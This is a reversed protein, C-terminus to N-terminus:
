MGVILSNAGESGIASDSWDLQYRSGVSESITLNPSTSLFIPVTTKGTEKFQNQVTDTTNNEIVYFGFKHDLSVDLVRQIQEVTFGNPRDSIASFL